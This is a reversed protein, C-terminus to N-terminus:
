CIPQQQDCVGRLATRLACGGVVCFLISLCTHLTSIETYDIVLTFLISRLIHWRRAGRPTLRQVAASRSSTGPSLSPHTPEDRVRVGFAWRQMSYASARSGDFGREGQPPPIPARSLAGGRRGPRGDACAGGCMCVAEVVGAVWARVPGLRAADPVCGTGCRYLVSSLSGALVARM